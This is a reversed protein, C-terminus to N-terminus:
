SNESGLKLTESIFNLSVPGQLHWYDKFTKPFSDLMKKRSALAREGTEEDKFIAVSMGSTEVTRVLILNDAEPISKPPVKSYKPEFDDTAEKSVYEVMSIRAVTM